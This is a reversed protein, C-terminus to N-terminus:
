WLLFVKQNFNIYQAYRISFLLLVRKKFCFFNSCPNMKLLIAIFFVATM